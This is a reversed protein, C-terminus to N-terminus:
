GPKKSASLAVLLDQYSRSMIYCSFMELDSSTDINIKGNETTWKRFSNQRNADSVSTSGRSISSYVLRAALSM